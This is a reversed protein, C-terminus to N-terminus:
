PGTTALIQQAEANGPMLELTRKAQARATETDGSRLALRALTLHLEPTDRLALAQELLARAQRLDTARAAARSVLGDNNGEPWVKIAAVAARLSLDNDGLDYAVNALTV